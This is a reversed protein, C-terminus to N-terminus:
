RTKGLRFGNHHLSGAQKSATCPKPASLRAAPHGCSLRSKRVPVPRHECPAFRLRLPRTADTALVSQRWGIRM